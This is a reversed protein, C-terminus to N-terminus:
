YSLSVLVSPHDDFDGHTDSGNQQQDRDGSLAGILVADPDALNL